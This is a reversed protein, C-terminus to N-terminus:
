KPSADTDFGAPFLPLTPELKATVAREVEAGWRDPTDPALRLPALDREGLLKELVLDIQQQFRPDVARTGDFSPRSWLPVRVLLDYTPMWADVVREWVPQRGTAHVMYCYNDLASRDCVVLDHTAAALEEAMQTHLIWSQAQATTVENIPLPCRRAVERVLDLDVGRRKLRAAIDYCLTTKGVGHTGILAIKM